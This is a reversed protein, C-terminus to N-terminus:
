VLLGDGFYQAIHGGYRQIVEECMTQYARMVECLDGPDLRNSLATSDVLDCFM